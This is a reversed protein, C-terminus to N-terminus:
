LKNLIEELQKIQKDKREKNPESRINLALFALAKTLPESSYTAKELATQINASDESNLNEEFPSGLGVNGRLLILRYHTIEQEIEKEFRSKPYDRNFKEWFLLYEVVQNFSDFIGGESDPSVGIYEQRIRDFYLQDERNLYPRFVDIFYQPHLTITFEGEGLYYDDIYMKKMNEIFYKQDSRIAEQQVESSSVESSQSARQQLVYLLSAPLTDFYAEYAKPALDLWQYRQELSAKPLCSKILENLNLLDDVSRVGNLDKFKKEITRCEENLSNKEIPESASTKKEEIPVDAPKCAFLGSLCVLYM